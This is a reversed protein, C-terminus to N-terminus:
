ANNSGVVVSLVSSTTLSTFIDVVGDLVVMCGVASEIRCSLSSVQKRVTHILATAGPGVVASLM